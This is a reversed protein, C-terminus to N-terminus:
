AQLHKYIILWLIGRLTYNSEMLAEDFLLQTSCETGALIASWKQSHIRAHTGHSKM